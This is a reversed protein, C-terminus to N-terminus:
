FVLVREFVLMNGSFSPQIGIKTKLYDREAFTHIKPPHILDCYEDHWAVSTQSVNAAFLEFDERWWHTCPHYRPWRPQPHPRVFRLHWSLLISFYIYKSLNTLIYLYMHLIYIYICYIFVGREQGPLHPPMHYKHHSLGVDKELRKDQLDLRM